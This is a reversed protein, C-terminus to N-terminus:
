AVAFAAGGIKTRRYGGFALGSFGLLMMAWTSPEPVGTVQGQSFGFGQGNAGTPYIGTAYSAAPHAEADAVYDAILTNQGPTGSVQSPAFGYEIEWIAGQVATLENQTKASWSTPLGGNKAIGVGIDALTQIEGSVLFSLPNGTGSEAGSSNTNVAGTDYQLPPNYTLQSGINVYIVHSLDVCFVFLPNLSGQVTLDLATAYDYTGNVDLQNTSYIGAGTIELAGASAGSAAAIALIACAGLATTRFCTM